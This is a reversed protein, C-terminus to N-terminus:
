QGDGCWGARERVLDEFATTLRMGQRVRTRQIWKLEVVGRLVCLEQVLLEVGQAEICGVGDAVAVTEEAREGVLEVASLVVVKSQAFVDAIPNRSAWLAIGGKDIVLAAEVDM